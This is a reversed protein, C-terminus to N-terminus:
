LGVTSWLLTHYLSLMLVSAVMHWEGSVTEINIWCIQRQGSMSVAKRSQGANEPVSADCHQHCKRGETVLFAVAWIFCFM